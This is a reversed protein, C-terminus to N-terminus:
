AAAVLTVRENSDRRACVIVNVSAVGILLTYVDPSKATLAVDKEVKGTVNLELVGLMQVTVPDVTLITVTPVQV